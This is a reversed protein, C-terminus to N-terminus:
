VKTVMLLGQELLDLNEDSLPTLGRGLNPKPAFLSLFSVKADNLSDEERLLDIERLYESLEDDFQYYQKYKVEMMVLMFIKIRSYHLCRYELHKSYLFQLRHAGDDHDILRLIDNHTYAYSLLKPALQILASINQNGNTAVLLEALKVINFGHKILVPFSDLALHILEHATTASTLTFIFSNNLGLANLSNYSELYLGLHTASL